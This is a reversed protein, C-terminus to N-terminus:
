LTAEGEGTTNLLPNPSFNVFNKVWFLRELPQSIKEHHCQTITTNTTTTIPTPPQQSEPPMEVCLFYTAMPYGGKISGAM